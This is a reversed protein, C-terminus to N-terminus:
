RCRGVVALGSPYRYPVLECSAFGAGLVRTWVDSGFESRVLLGPDQTEPSGHYSAPLGSRSRTLRGVVIPVTFVCAGAPSLVRRCEALAREPEPVHELTDSHVVLDFSGDPFPLRQLDVDPFRVLRHRPLRSLVPTLTGAENVELLRLPAAQGSGVYAELTGEAGGLRRLARALAQSRVNAGCGTCRTGQQVDLYAAEDASIEWRRALEPWIVAVHDFRDHGCVQCAADDAGTM